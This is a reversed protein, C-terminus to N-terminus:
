GGYATVNEFLRVLLTTLPGTKCALHLQLIGKVQKFGAQVLEIITSFNMRPGPWTFVPQVGTNGSEKLAVTQIARTRPRQLEGDNNLWSHEVNVVLAAGQTLTMLEADRRAYDGSVKLWCWSWLVLM